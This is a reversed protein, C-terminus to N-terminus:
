IGREDQSWVKEVMSQNSHQCLFFFGHIRKNHHCTYTMYSIADSKSLLPLWYSDAGEFFYYTVQSLRRRLGMDKQRSGRHILWAVWFLTEGKKLDHM